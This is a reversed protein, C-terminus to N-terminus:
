LIAGAIATPQGKMKFGALKVGKARLEEAFLGNSGGPFKAPDHNGTGATSNWRWEGYNDEGWAKWDYDLIFADLPIHKSRYTDVIARVEKEDSGWQSNLFGLTWKPPMPPRGSLKAFQSLVELPTGSVAFYEIDQRSGGSFEVINDRMDFAGGITDFLVGFRTTFFFPAGGDGQAGADIESGGNRLLGASTNWLDLGKMGYLNDGTRHVIDAAQESARALLDEQSFLLSGDLNDVTLQIPSQKTVYVRLESSRLTLVDGADEKYIVAEADPKLTPDFVSTRPDSQGQPAIHVRLTRANFFEVEVSGSSCNIQLTTKSSEVPRCVDPKSEALM